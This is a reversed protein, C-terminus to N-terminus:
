RLEDEEHVEEPARELALLGALVRPVGVAQLPRGLRGRRVAVPHAGDGLDMAPRVLVTVGVRRAVVHHLVLGGPHRRAMLPMVARASSCDGTWWPPLRGGSAGAWPLPPEPPSPPIRASGARRPSHSNRPVMVISNM